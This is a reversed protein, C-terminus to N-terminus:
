VEGRARALATRAARFDKVMSDVTTTLTWYPQYDATAIMADTVDAEWQYLAELATYLAANVILADHCVTLAREGAQFLEAHDVEPNPSEAATDRLDPIDECFQEWAKENFRGPTSRTDKM